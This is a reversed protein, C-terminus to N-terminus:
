WNGPRPGPLEQSVGPVGRGESGCGHALQALEKFPSARRLASGSGAGLLGQGPKPLGLLHQALFLLVQFISDLSFDGQGLLVARLILSTPKAASTLERGEGASEKPFMQGCCRYGWSAPNAGVAKRPVPISLGGEGRGRGPGFSSHASSPM